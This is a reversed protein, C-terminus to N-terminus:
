CIFKGIMYFSGCIINLRETSLQQKEYKQCSVPCVPKLEDYACANPYEFENLYVEDEERFLIEMM